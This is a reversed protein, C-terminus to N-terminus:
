KMPVIIQSHVIWKLQRILNLIHSNKIYSTHQASSPAGRLRLSRCFSPHIGHILDLFPRQRRTQPYRHNVPDVCNMTVITDVICGNERVINTKADGPMNTNVPLDM